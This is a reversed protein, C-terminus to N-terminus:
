NSRVSSCTQHQQCYHHAGVWYNKRFLILYWTSQLWHFWCSSICPRFPQKRLNERKQPSHDDSYSFYTQFLHRWKQLKSIPLGRISQQSFLLETKEMGTGGKGKRANPLIGEWCVHSIYPFVHFKLVMIVSTWPCFLWVSALHERCWEQM